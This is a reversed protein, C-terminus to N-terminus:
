VREVDAVADMDGKGPSFGEAVHQCPAFDRDGVWEAGLEFGNEGDDGVGNGDVRFLEAGDLPHALAVDAVEEGGNAADGRGDQAVFQLRAHPEFVGIQATGVGPIGYRPRVQDLGQARESARGFQFFEALRCFEGVEGPGVPFEYAGPQDNLGF